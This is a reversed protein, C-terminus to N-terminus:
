RWLGVDEWTEPPIEDGLKYTFATVKLHDSALTCDFSLAYWSEGARVAAGKAHVIDGEFRSRGFTDPVLRDVRRLRKDRRITDLGKAVCAQQAREEPSLKMLSQEYRSPQAAEVAPVTLAFALAAFVFRMMM